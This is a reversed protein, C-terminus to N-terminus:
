CHGAASHPAPYHREAAYHSAFRYRATADDPKQNMEGKILRYQGLEKGTKITLVGYTLQFYLFKGGFAGAVLPPSAVPSGRFLKRPPSAPRIGASKKQNAEEKGPQRAGAENNCCNLNTKRSNDHKVRRAIDPL